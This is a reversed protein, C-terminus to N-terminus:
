RIREIRYRPSLRRELNGLERESVAFGLLVGIGVLAIWSLVVLASADSKGTAYVFACCSLAIGIGSLVFATPKLRCAKRITWIWAVLFVLGLVSVGILESTGMGTRYAGLLHNAFSYGSPNWTALVLATALITRVFLVTRIHVGEKNRWVSRAETM